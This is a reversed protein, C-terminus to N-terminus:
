YENKRYFKILGNLDESKLWESMVAIHQTYGNLLELNKRNVGGLAVSNVHETLGARPIPKKGPKCCTEFVNSYFGYTDQSLSKLEEVCHTSVSFSEETKEVFRNHIKLNLAKAVIPRHCVVLETKTGAMMQLCSLALNHYAIDSLTNERLLIYDVGALSAERIKLLLQNNSCLNTNTIFFIM